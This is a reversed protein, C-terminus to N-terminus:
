REAEGTSNAEDSGRQLQEFLSATTRSPVEDLEALTRRLLELTRPVADYEGIRAQMRAIDQYIAENYCDLERARELLDLAERPDTARLARVLASVSDLYERRLTERPAEAWEAPVDDAFDGTYLGVARYLLLRRREEDEGSRRAGKVAERFGWLDVSVHHQDLGYLGDSRHTIDSVGSDTAARLARRLHSLTAHFSNSPRDHPADPWLTATLTERRVGDRHLALYALVERQKPALAETIDVPESASGLGSYTLRVRGLVSIRLRCDHHHSTGSPQPVEVRRAPAADRRTRSTTIPETGASSPTVASQHVTEDVDAPQAEALLDLLAQAADTPVTFLRAGSFVQAHSPSTASVSGDQRVGLTGGPRWQGILIGALGLASGNDLIAQLRREEPGVASAILVIEPRSGFGVDGGEDQFRTRSLLEAEMIQLAESTDAM